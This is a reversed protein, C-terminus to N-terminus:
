TLWNLTTSLLLSKDFTRLSTRGKVWWQTRGRRETLSSLVRGDKSCQSGLLRVVLTLLMRSPDSPTSPTHPYRPSTHSSLRHSEVKKISTLHPQGSRSPVSVPAHTFFCISWRSPSSLFHIRWINPFNQTRRGSEPCSGFTCPLVTYHLILLFFRFLSNLHSFSGNVTLLRRLITSRTM